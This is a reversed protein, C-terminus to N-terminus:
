EFIRIKVRHFPNKTNEQRERPREKGKGLLRLAIQFGLIKGVNETEEELGGRCGGRGFVVFPHEAHPNMGHGRVPKAAALGHGGIFVYGNVIQCSLQFFQTQLGGKVAAPELRELHKGDRGTRLTVPYVDLSLFLRLELIRFVQNDPGGLGGVFHLNGLMRTAM